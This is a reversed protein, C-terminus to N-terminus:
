KTADRGLSADQRLLPFLKCGSLHWLFIGVLRIKITSKLSFWWVDVLVVSFSVVSTVLVWSRWGVVFGGAM